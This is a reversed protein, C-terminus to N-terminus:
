PRIELENITLDDMYFKTSVTSSANYGRIFFFFDKTSVPKWEVSVFVWKGVPFAADFFYAFEGSWDNPYFRMDPAFGDGTDKNGLQDMYIWFGVKYTKGAEVSFTIPNGADDRHDFIAGGGANMDIYMSKSGSHAQDTTISSTYGDWPPGWWGYPWNSDASNEFGTDYGNLAMINVSKFDLSQDSFSTAEMLDTTILNGVSADYSVLVEDSNYLDQDLNIIVINKEVPDLEFSSINVAIPNGNNTVNITFAAPDCNFPDQMERSYVLGIQNSKLRNTEMLDVPDTSPVVSIYDSFSVTDAGLSSSAILTVKYVDMASFKFAVSDGQLTKFIGGKGEINWVFDSPEGISRQVFVVERGAIVENMAGDTNVLVSNDEVRRAEFNAKVSDLVNVIITSDYTNSGLPKGGLYANGAFSQDIKVEYKGAKMFTAKVVAADSTQNNDADVIDVGDAPFTWTRNVVGRSLDIFDMSGNVQLRASVIGFSTTIMVDNPEGTPAVYEEKCGWVVLAALVTFILIKYISKM